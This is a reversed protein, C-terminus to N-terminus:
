EDRLECRVAGRLHVRELEGDAGVVYPERHAVITGNEEDAVIASKVPVGDLYVRVFKHQARAAQYNAFGPDLEDIAYRPM